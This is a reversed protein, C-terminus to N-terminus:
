RAPLEFMTKSKCQAFYRLAAAAIIADAEDADVGKAIFQAAVGASNYFVLAQNLFDAQARSTKHAGYGGSLFLLKSFNRCAGAQCRVLM